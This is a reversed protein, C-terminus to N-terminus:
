GKLGYCELSSKFCYGVGQIYNVHDLAWVALALAQIGVIVILIGFVIEGRRTLRM